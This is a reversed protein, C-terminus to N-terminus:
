VGVLTLRAATRIRIRRGTTLNEAWWGGYECENTIRVKTRLGSVKAVYINGVKVDNKRM